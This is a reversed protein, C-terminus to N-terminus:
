FKCLSCLCVLTAPYHLWGIYGATRVLGGHRRHASLSIRHTLDLSWKNSTNHIQQPKAIFSQRDVQLRQGIGLIKVLMCSPSLHYKPLKILKYLLRQQLAKSYLGVTYMYMCCWGFNRTRRSSFVTDSKLDAFVWTNTPLTTRICVIYHDSFLKLVQYCWIELNPYLHKQLTTEFLRAM